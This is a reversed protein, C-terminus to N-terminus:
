ARPPAHPQFLLYAALSLVVTATWFQKLLRQEPPTVAFLHVPVAGHHALAFCIQCDRDAAAPMEPGGAALAAIRPAGHSSFPPAHHHWAFMMAQFLIATIGLVASTLRSARSTKGIQGRASFSSSVGNRYEGQADARGRRRDPRDEIITCYLLQETRRVGKAVAPM